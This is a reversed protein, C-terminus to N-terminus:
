ISSRGLRGGLVTRAELCLADVDVDAIAANRRNIEAEIGKFDGGIGEARWEYLDGTFRSSKVLWQTRERRTADFTALVAELDSHSDRVRPDSLLSALVASDEICFGAGAGHHPSTAHAADGLVAVRGKFFTPLPPLDYIAWINLEPDTLKLLNLVNPGFSAFDRLAEDRTGSRTLRPYDTWEAPTTHFAVINLTQGQNVPFTLM